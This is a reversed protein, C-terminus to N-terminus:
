REEEVLPRDLRRRDLWAGDARLELRGDVLWGIARPYIVHEGRVVRERLSAEDDTPRVAVRYQLVGPGADLQPIVFHVTSGHWEDGSELVRRHTGLGPYSPLLSPHINLMRGQFREVLPAALIRMFGALVVVDPALDTLLREIALDFACREVFAAFDLTLAPIGSRIARGLAAVGPRDSVVAALQSHITGDNVRDIIAQLNSGGGSVFIVTRHERRRTM